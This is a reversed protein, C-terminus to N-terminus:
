TYKKKTKFGTEKKISLFHEETLTLHEIERTKKEEKVSKNRVVDFARLM